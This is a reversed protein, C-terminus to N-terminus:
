YVLSRLEAAKQALHDSLEKDYKAKVAKEAKYKQECCEILDLCAAIVSERFHSPYRVDPTPIDAEVMESLGIYYISSIKIKVVVGSKRTIEVANHEAGIRIRGSQIQASVKRLIDSISLDAIASAKLLLEKGKATMRMHYM